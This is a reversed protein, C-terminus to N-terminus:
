RPMHPIHPVGHPLKPPDINYTVSMYTLGAIAILAGILIVLATRWAAFPGPTPAHPGEKTLEVRATAAARKWWTELRDSIDGIPGEEDPTDLSGLAIRYRNADLDFDAFLHGPASYRRLGLWITRDRPYSLNVDWDTGLLDCLVRGTAAETIRPTHVFQDRAWEVPQIEIRISGDPSTQTFHPSPAEDALQSQPPGAVPVPSKASSILPEPSGKRRMALGIAVGIGAVVIWPVLIIVGILMVGFALNYAGSGPAPSSLSGLGLILVMPIAPAFLWLLIAAVLWRQRIRAVIMAGLGALFVGIIVLQVIELM